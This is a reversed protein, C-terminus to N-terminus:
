EPPAGAANARDAAQRAALLEEKMRKTTVPDATSLDRLEYPDDMLDYLELIDDYGPYDAYWILKRTGKILVFSGRRFPRFASNENNRMSYVSRGDEEEGGLGPLLRGDLRAPPQVGMLSALTPLLDVNATPTHVDVRQAQRPASVLLPVRIVGEYMLRSAHGHVGREFLQGHDSTVIVYTNDLLGAVDLADLLLGFEADVNAIYQDYLRAYQRLETERFPFDALPHTPRVPVKMEADFLARFERRPAYPEHPSWLHFYALWPRDQAASAQDLIAQLGQFVTRNQYYFYGNFPPRPEGEQMFRLDSNVNWGRGAASDLMGLMVSGAYPTDLKVGGVLFDDYAFYPLPDTTTLEGLLLPNKYAFSYAPLHWDVDAHFQRLFLDAWLNQTFGIRFYNEGAARFLNNGAMDRRILGGASIARHNWPLLGTLMSATAPTTFSSEAYHSHYVTAKEAFRELNPTTARDYGYVSLHQASVTDFVLILVNPRDTKQVTMRNLAPLARSLAASGLLASSLKLFDRRSFATM